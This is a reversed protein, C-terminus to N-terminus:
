AEGVHLAQPQDQQDRGLDIPGVGISDLRQEGMVEEIGDPPSPKSLFPSILTALPGPIM